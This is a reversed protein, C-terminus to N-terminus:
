VSYFWPYVLVIMKIAFCFVAAESSFTISLNISSKFSLRSRLIDHLTSSQHLASEIRKGNIACVALITRAVGADSANKELSGLM